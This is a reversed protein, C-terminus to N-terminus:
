YYHLPQFLSDFFTLTSAGLTIGIIGGIEGVLSILDYSIYTNQYLVEPNAFLVWIEHEKQTEQVTYTSTFRTMECTQTQKCKTEKKLILDLGEGTADHSCNLVDKSIFDDLHHGSYLIPIHCHFKDLILQNDEISQCTNYEYKVCPNKRTSERKNIKKTLELKHMQKTINSLKPTLSGNLLFADPLDNKTHLMITISQWPNNEAMVFKLGPRM